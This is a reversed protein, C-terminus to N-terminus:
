KKEPKLITRLAPRGQITVSHEVFHYHEGDIIFSRRGKYLVSRGQKELENQVALAQKKLDFYRENLTLVIHKKQYHIFWNIFGIIAFLFLFTYFMYEM